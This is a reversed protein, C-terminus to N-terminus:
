HLRSKKDVPKPAVVAVGTQLKASAGDALKETLQQMKESQRGQEEQIVLLKNSLAEIRERHRVITNSNVFQMVLILLQVVILM